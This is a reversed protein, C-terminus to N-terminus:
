AFTEIDYREVYKLTMAPGIGPRALEDLIDTRCLFLIVKQEIFWMALILIERTIINNLKGMHSYYFARQTSLRSAERRM